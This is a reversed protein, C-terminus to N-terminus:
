AARHMSPGPRVLAWHRGTAGRDRRHSYFRDPDSATCWGGDVIRDEAVGARILAHLVGGAVSLRFRGPADRDPTALDAPFGAERFSAVVDPGVQYAPASVNPGIAARLEAPDVSFERQLAEIANGVVGAAAGRWGAHVAAAAGTRPDYLLLPVCDAVSVALTWDPDNSILADGRVTGPPGVKEARHPRTGHVQHLAATRDPDAGFAALARRRNEAVAEPDDGVSLGLNLAEWPALSVGGARTTFAHRAPFGDVRLLPVEGAPGTADRGTVDSGRADSETAASM